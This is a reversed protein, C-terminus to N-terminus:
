KYENKHTVLTFTDPSHLTQVSTDGDSLHIVTSVPAAPTVGDKTPEQRRLPTLTLQGRHLQVEYRSCLVFPLAQFHRLSDQVAAAIM